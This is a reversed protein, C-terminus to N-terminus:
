KAAGPMSSQTPRELSGGTLYFTLFLSLFRHAANSGRLLRSSNSACVQDPSTIRCARGVFSSKRDVIPEAEIIELGEPLEVPAQPESATSRTSPINEPLGSPDDLELSTKSEKAEERIMEGVAKKSLQEEYWRGCKERVNELGDFVCVTEPTWEVGDTTSIFTRLVSGFITPSVGFAGVYKSWLQLQPPASSPYSHPLSVLVSFTVHDHPDPLRKYMPRTLRLFVTPVVSIFYGITVIYRVMAEPKKAAQSPPEWLSLADDGYISQLVKGSSEEDFM